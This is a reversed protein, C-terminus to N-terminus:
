VSNLQKTDRKSGYLTYIRDFVRARELVDRNAVYSVALTCVCSIIAFSLCITRIKPKALGVSILIICIITLVLIVIYGGFMLRHASDIKTILNYAEAISDKNSPMPISKMDDREYVIYEEDQDELSIANM